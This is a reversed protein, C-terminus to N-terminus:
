RFKKIKFTDHLLSTISSIEDLDNGTLVVDDVYVLLTTIKSHSFKLFLSHDATAHKYGHSILFYSLKAYWQRSAQKLGYISKHLLCVHDKKRALGPPVQMYVEEHLDHLDGHLFANNVDLQKLHWNNIVVLSLLVRITTIKAVLSFTEFYDLGELQGYGKAVLQAKYRNVSGDVNYKTKYVWKYGIAIKNPPLPLISWTANQKLAELEEQMARKWKEQQAAIRYNEPEINTDLSLVVQKFHPSLRALSVYSNILYNSKHM